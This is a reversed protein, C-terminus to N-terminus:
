PGMAAPGDPNTVGGSAYYIAAAGASSSSTVNVGFSLWAFIGQSINDGLLTYQMVPDVGETAAESAMIDDASNETLTQENLTYPSTSEVTSILDQDFFSQGIHTATADHGLTGNRYITANHHVLVHIHTARGTYHGPFVSDFQAVGDDDTLQIGRLWTSDLGGQPSDVGSYVGTANCHWIEVYVDSVPECTDVNIVQYDLTIPVGTQYEVINKRVYEGTVYYPGDTEEPTLVCSNESAFITSEPTNKTYGSSTANHDTALVSELDRKRMQQVAKSRRALNRKEIGRAELQSSCHSLNSRTSVKKFAARQAIDASLDHGPHAATFAALTALTSFTSFRM